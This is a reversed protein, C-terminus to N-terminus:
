RFHSCGIAMGVELVVNFNFSGNKVSTIDFVLIDAHAVRRRITTLLDQGQTGRIRLPRVDVSTPSSRKILDRLQTWHTDDRASGPGAWEYGVHVNVRPKISKPQM